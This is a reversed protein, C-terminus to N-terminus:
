AAHYDQHELQNKLNGAATGSTAMPLLIQTFLRSLIRPPLNSKGSSSFSYERHMEFPAWFTAGTPTFADILKLADDLETGM